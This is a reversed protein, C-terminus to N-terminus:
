VELTKGDVVVTDSITGTVGWENPNDISITGTLAWASDTMGDATIDITYRVMRRLNGQGDAGTFVTGPGSKAIDWLMERQFGLNATKTVDLDAGVCVKVSQNAETGDASETAKNPYDTCKGPVGPINRTYTKVVVTHPPTNANSESWVDIWNFTGLNEASGGNFTDFVTTTLDTPPQNIAFLYSTQATREYTPNPVTQPYDVQSWTMTATTSGDPPNPGPACTYPEQVGDADVTM